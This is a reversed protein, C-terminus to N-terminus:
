RYFDHWHPTILKMKLDNQHKKRVANFKNEGNM